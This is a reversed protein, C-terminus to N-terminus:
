GDSRPDRPDRCYAWPIGGACALSPPSRHLPSLRADIRAMRCSFPRPVRDGAGARRIPRLLEEAGNGPDAIGRDAAGRKCHLIRLDAAWHFPDRRGVPYEAPGSEAHHQGQGHRAGRVRNRGESSAVGASPWEKALVWALNEPTDDVRSLKPVRHPAPKRHEHAILAARPDEPVKGKRGADKIASLIGEREATWAAIEAAKTKLLPKAAEAQEREYERIASSFYGDCTSKREGSDAITLLFLGVPGSLREARKVDIHAQAAVSLAALASSAVLPVPAKTFGQVEEVAARITDPLADLPYSQPEGKVTLPQPEPWEEGGCFGGPLAGDGPQCNNRASAGDTGADDRRRAEVCPLAAIDAATAAPNAALWDVADGKEPLGLKEVDIVRVTCGQTLLKETVEQAYRRGAEDNDPWITARRGAMPRWDSTAASDAGGSTTTLLGRDALRDTCLEGEVVIVGDHPRAALDHLRYLPKGDPFDPEGLEFGAGNLRVPRIWKDGTQLNKLRIRWYWAGGDPHTYTHLAQPMYGDRM